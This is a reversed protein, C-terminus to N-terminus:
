RASTLQNKWYDVEQQLNAVTAQHGIWQRMFSEQDSPDVSISQVTNYWELRNTLRIIVEQIIGENAKARSRASERAQKRGAPEGINYPESVQFFEGDNLLMDDDM